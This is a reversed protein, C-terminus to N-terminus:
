FAKLLSDAILSKQESEFSKIVASNHLSWNDKSTDSKKGAQERSEVLGDIKFAASVLEVLAM